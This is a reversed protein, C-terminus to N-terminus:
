GDESVLNRWYWLKVTRLATEDRLCRAANEASASGSGIRLFIEAEFACTADRQKIWTLQADKLLAQGPKKLKGRLEKYVGNLVGDWALRERSLCEIYGRTTKMAPDTQCLNTVMGICQTRFEEITVITQLCTWVERGDDAKASQPLATSLILAAVLSLIRM